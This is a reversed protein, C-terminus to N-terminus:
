GAHRPTRHKGAWSAVAVCLEVFREHPLTGKMRNIEKTVWQLNSRDHSGGRSKPHKHDVCANEGPILPLGSYACRRGQSEFIETLVKADGYHGSAIRGTKVAWGLWHRVCFWSFPLPPNRCFVCLGKALRKRFYARRDYKTKLYVRQYTKACSRCSSRLGDAHRRDRSFASLPQVAKCKACRKVQAIEVAVGTNQDRPFPAIWRVLRPHLQLTPLNQNESEDTLRERKDAASGFVSGESFPRLRSGFTTRNSAPQCVSM